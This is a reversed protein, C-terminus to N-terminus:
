SFIDITEPATAEAAAPPADAREGAERDHLLEEVLQRAARQQRLREREGPPGPRHSRHWAEHKQRGESTMAALRQRRTAQRKEAAIM